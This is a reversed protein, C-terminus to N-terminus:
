SVNRRSMSIKVAFLNDLVEKLRLLVIGTSEDAIQGIKLIGQNLKEEEYGKLILPNLDELVINRTKVFGERELHHLIDISKFVLVEWDSSLHSKFDNLRDGYREVVEEVTLM